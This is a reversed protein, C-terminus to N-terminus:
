QPYFIYSKKIQKSQKLTKGQSIPSFVTIKCEHNFQFSMNLYKQEVIIADNNRPKSAEDGMM